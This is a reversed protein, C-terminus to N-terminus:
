IEITIVCFCDIDLHFLIFIFFYFLYEIGPLHLYLEIGSHRHM